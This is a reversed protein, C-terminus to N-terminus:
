NITRLHVSIFAFKKRTLVHKLGAFSKDIGSSGSIVLRTDNTCASSYVSILLKKYERENANM